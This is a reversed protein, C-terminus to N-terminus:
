DLRLGPDSSSEGLVGECIARKVAPTDYFGIAIRHRVMTVIAPSLPQRGVSGPEAAGREWPFTEASRPSHRM